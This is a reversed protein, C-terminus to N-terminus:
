LNRITLLNHKGSILTKFAAEVNTEDAASTEMFSAGINKAKDIAKDTPVARNQQLDAKNGCLILSADPDGLEKIQQQWRDISEFSEKRTIDYVMMAGKAGKFYAATISKYREQGATDWLQVKIVHESIQFIKSQLEVGVTAKSETHFENLVYRSLLNSKGVGSDGIIVIKFLYDEGGTHNKLETIKLEM